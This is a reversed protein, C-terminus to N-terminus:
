KVAATAARVEAATLIGDKDADLKNFTELTAARHEALSVQGDKNTDIRLVTDADVPPAPTIKAFEAPSLQGNKDTDLTTFMAKNRQDLRTTATLRQFTEIEIRSMQGDKNTDVKTFEADANAVIQARPATRVGTPAQALSAASAISVVVFLTPRFM